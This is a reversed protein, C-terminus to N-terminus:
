SKTTNAGINRLSQVLWGQHNNVPQRHVNLYIWIWPVNQENKESIDPCNSVGMPPRKHRYKEGPLITTCLNRAQKSIHIHYYGMNLELSMAYQFGELNLLMERIKPMPYPNRKLQRDLNRFNSWLIVCNTKAKPQAFSTAGGESHNAGEPFVLRELREVAKRFMAKNVRPLSYPRLWM